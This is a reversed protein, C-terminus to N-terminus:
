NRVRFTPSDEPRMKRKDYLRTTSINAHGLWEQVKAIDAENELANTAATARLAHVCFGDIDLTLGVQKGYTQILSYISQPHLPKNLKKTVNNKTPKFLPDDKQDKHGALELYDNILRQSQPAVPIYRLKDGKGLVSFHVVGERSSMDRVKLSACEQRRIAHFLFVSLIAKDRLGKLSQSSPADLLAKAQEDSLAPTKGINSGESPRTVGTVPNHTVANCNCLYAFLSSLASLKRRVTAASKKELDLKDRWAIVHARTVRRFDSVERIGIFASFDKVDNQYGRKTNANRINAFWEVEPPVAALQLFREDELRTEVNSTGSLILENKAM